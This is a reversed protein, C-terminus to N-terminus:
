RQDHNPPQDREVARSVQWGPQNSSRGELPFPRPTSGRPTGQDNTSYLQPLSALVSTPHDDTEEVDDLADIDDNLTLMANCLSLSNVM